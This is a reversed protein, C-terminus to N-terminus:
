WIKSHSIFYFLFLKVRYYLKKFFHLLNPSIMVEMKIDDKKEKYIIKM